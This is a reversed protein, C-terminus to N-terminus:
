PTVPCADRDATALLLKVEQGLNPGGLTLNRVEPVVVTQGLPRAVRAVVSVFQGTCSANSAAVPAALATAALAASITALVLRRRIM